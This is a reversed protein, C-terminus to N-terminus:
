SKGYWFETKMNFQRLGNINIEKPNNKEYYNTNKDESLIMEKNVGAVQSLDEILYQLFIIDKSDHQWEVGNNSFVMTYSFGEDAMIVEGSQHDFVPMGKQGGEDVLEYGQPLYTPNTLSFPAIIEAEERSITPVTALLNPDVDEENVSYADAMQFGEGNKIQITSEGINLNIHYAASVTITTFLILTTITTILVKLPNRQSKTERKEIIQTWLKDPNPCELNENKFLMEFKNKSM